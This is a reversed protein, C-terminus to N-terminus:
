MALILDLARDTIDYLYDPAAPMPSLEATLYGDYGAERLARAVRDWRISGELLNCFYGTNTGSRRFDKVHVKAIRRGLIDIWYEPWSFIAVNGVDFYAGLNKMAMEDIFRAMDFPSIFFNNWVNEVGVAVGSGEILGRCAELEAQANRWAERISMEPGIGGPVVLIGDAGLEQACRLQQAMVRAAPLEQSPGCLTTKGWLSSSVGSVALGTDESIRRIEMLERASTEMTLSHRSRGAPDLNLEVGDFGARKLAAFMPEFPVDDPVTWANLSKKMM